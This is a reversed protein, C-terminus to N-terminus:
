HDLLDEREGCIRPRMVRNLRLKWISSRTVRTRNKTVHVLGHRSRFAAINQESADDRPHTIKSDGAQGHAVPSRQRQFSRQRKRSIIRGTCQSARKESSVLSSCDSCTGEKTLSRSRSWEQARHGVTANDAFSPRLSMVWLLVRPREELGSGPDAPATQPQPRSLLTM